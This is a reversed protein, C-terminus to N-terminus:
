DLTKLMKYLLHTPLGVVNTYSGNLHVVGILGLWEQIGYAGAKDTPEFVSVYYEMEKDSLAGFTVETVANELKQEKATTVCVSTIVEHCSNNLVRLMALADKNDKPKELSRGNHWVVTDATILVENERLASRLANAKLRALYDSIEERRLVPPYTEEVAPPRLEFQLGLREMFEQRRPSASGLVIIRDKLVESFMIKIKIWELLIVEYLIIPKIVM